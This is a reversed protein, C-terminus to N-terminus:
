TLYFLATIDSVIRVKDEGKLPKEFVGVRVSTQGKGADDEAPEAHFRKASKTEGEDERSRKNSVETSETSRPAPEM